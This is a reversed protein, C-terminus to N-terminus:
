RPLKQKILLHFNKGVSAFAGGSVSSLPGLRTAWSLQAVIATSIQQAASATNYIYIYTNHFYLM